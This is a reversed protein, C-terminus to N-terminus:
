VVAEQVKMSAFDSSKMWNGKNGHEISYKSTFRDEVVQEKSISRRLM